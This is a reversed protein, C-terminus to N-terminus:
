ESQDVDLAVTSSLASTTQVHYLDVGPLGKTLVAYGTEDTEIVTTARVGLRALEAVLKSSNGGRGVSHKWGVLNGGGRGAVAAIARTMDELKGPFSVLYDLFFDPM